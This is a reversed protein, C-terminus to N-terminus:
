PCLDGFEAGFMVRNSSLSEVVWRYCGSIFSLQADTGQLVFTVAGGGDRLAINATRATSVLRTGSVTVLHLKVAVHASLNDPVLGGEIDLTVKAGKRGLTWGVSTELGTLSIRRTGARSRVVLHHEALARVLFLKRESSSDLRLLVGPVANGEADEVVLTTRAGTATLRFLEGVEVRISPRGSGSGNDNGGSGSGSGNGNSGNDNGGSGSGNGNGHHRDRDRDKHRYRPRHPKQVNDPTPRVTHTPRPTPRVTHTPRPTPRVTQPPRPTYTSSHPDNSIVITGRTADTVRNFANGIKSAIDFDADSMLISMLM